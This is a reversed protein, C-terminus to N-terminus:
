YLRFGQFFVDRGEVEVRSLEMMTVVLATGQKQWLDSMADSSWVVISKGGISFCQLDDDARALWWIVLMAGMAGTVGESSSRRPVALMRLQYSLQLGLSHGFDWLYGHRSSSSDLVECSRSINEIRGQRPVALEWICHVDVQDTVVSPLLNEKNFSVGQQPFSESVLSNVESTLKM